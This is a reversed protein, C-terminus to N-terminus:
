PPQRRQPEAKNQQKRQKTQHSAPRLFALTVSIQHRLGYANSHFKLLAAIKTIRAGLEFLQFNGVRCLEQNEQGFFASVSIGTRRLCPCQHLKGQRQTHLGALQHAIGHLM